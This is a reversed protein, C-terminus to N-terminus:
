SRYCMTPRNLSSHHCMQENRDTCYICVCATWSMDIMCESSEVCFTQKM